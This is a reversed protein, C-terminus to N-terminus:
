AVRKLYLVFPLDNHTNWEDQGLGIARIRRGEQEAMKVKGSIEVLAEFDYEGWELENFKAISGKGPVFFQLPESAHNGYWNSWRQRNKKLKDYVLNASLEEDLSLVVREHFPIQRNLRDEIFRRIFKPRVLYNIRNVWRTRNKETCHHTLTDDLSEIHNNLNKRSFIVVTILKLFVWSVVTNRKKWRVISSLGPMM